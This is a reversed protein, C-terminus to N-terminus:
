RRMLADLKQNITDKKFFNILNTQDISDATSIIEKIHSLAQEYYIDFSQPENQLKEIVKVEIDESKQKKWFEGLVLSGIVRALHFNGYKAIVKDITDTNSKQLDKSKGLCYSYILYSALLEEVRSGFASKYETESWIKNSHAMAIAPRHQVVAMYAQGVKDNPIIRKRNIKAAKKNFMRPKREYYYGRTEFLTELNRQLEDNARLDRDSVANQSNTTLTITEVVKENDTAFVKFLVKTKPDLKGEKWADRLTMSTQCGNVIQINEIRIFPPNTQYSPSFKDCTATIGNNYFWFYEAEKDDTCTKMIKSNISKKRRGMYTRVNEEFLSEGYTDVIKALDTGGVICLISDIAETRYMLYSPVNWISYIPLDITIRKKSQEIEYSKQVLEDIGWIKFEFRMFDVGSAYKNKTNAIQNKFDPSLNHISGKAVYHMILRINRITLKKIIERIEGIKLVFDKNSLMNYQEAPREFIWGLADRMQVIINGQYKDNNKIQVLHITAEGNDEDEDIRIIDIQMDGSGDVIDMDYDPSSYDSDFLLEYSLRMFAQDHNINLDTAISQIKDEILQSRLAFSNTQDTM